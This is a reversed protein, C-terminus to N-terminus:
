MIWVVMVICEGSWVAKETKWKFIGLIYNCRGILILQL